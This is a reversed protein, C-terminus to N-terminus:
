SKWRRGQRCGDRRRSSSCGQLCGRLRRPHSLIRCIRPSLRRHFPRSPSARLIRCLPRNRCSGRRSVSSKPLSLIMSVPWTESTPTGLVRFISAALLFDSAGGDFLTKRQLTPEPPPTACQRYYREFEDESDPSPPVPLELATFFESLTAGLAWLDLVFPDYDRSAFVLEPARYSSCTSLDLM